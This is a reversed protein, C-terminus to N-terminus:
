NTLEDVLAKVKKMLPISDDVGTHGHQSTWREIRNEYGKVAQVRWEPVLDFVTDYIDICRKTNEGIASPAMGALDYLVLLDVPVEDTVFTAAAAGMSHGIVVTKSGIPQQKIAKVIERWETFQFTPPCFVNKTIRLNGALVVEMGASFMAGGLGYMVYVYVPKPGEKIVPVALPGEVKAVKTVTVKDLMHWTNFGVVGDAVLDYKKQFEKVMNTTIPGFDGDVAAKKGLAENLMKQLKEVDAGSSGKKVLPWQKVEPAVAIPQLTEGLNWPSTDDQNKDKVSVHFHLTHKNKGTYNRWVWATNKQETGSCIQGNSILYKIRADKSDALRRALVGADVGNKPDHTIDLADVTGDSEPNHDSDRASHAADGIWGDSLISRKPYLENVQKRLTELSKVLRAM